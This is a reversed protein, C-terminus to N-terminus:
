LAYLLLGLGASLLILLIPSIKTKTLKNYVFATAGIIALVYSRYFYEVLYTTNTTRKSDKM